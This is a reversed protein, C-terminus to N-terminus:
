TTFGGYFDRAIPSPSSGPQDMCPPAPLPPADPSPVSVSEKGWANNENLQEQTM